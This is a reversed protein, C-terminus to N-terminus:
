WNIAIWLDSMSNENFYIELPGTPNPLPTFHNSLYGVLMDGYKNPNSELPVNVGDIENEYVTISTESKTFIIIEKSQNVSGNSWYPYHSNKIDLTLAFRTLDGDTSLRKFKAWETPFEHRVSFLRTSSTSHESTLSDKLSAIAASRILDGGERATYRIHLIVDSISEYDFQTLENKSPNAPLTVNWESIVGSHEFPLYREDRLNPDFLGSDNQSSSTVISQLSSFNDSFRPDQADERAYVGANLLQTTRISSKLLTLRCNVSTYPGTVCPISVAVTRIRRFYQGPGDMDFIAEPLKVTCTGTQRLQVLALPDVQMLSVHKIMEYERQNLEQYAMEMRKIDLFLKEGALLGENGSLYNFKIYNLESKGLEHQLAREAKKAMDFAMQFCQKNLGRVERSMWTYISKNMRKGNKENGEENLFLQIEESHKIQQKHNKLEQEAIAVRIQAARLQKFVQNLEGAALNSQFSWDLERSIFGAIKGAKTAEYSSKGASIRSSDAALSLETSLARGGFQLAAGAGMPQAQTGLEPILSVAKAIMDYDAAEEQLEQARKLRKMEQSEASSMIHGGATDLDQVIDVDIPEPLEIFPEDMSFNMKVLGEKDLEDLEPITQKIEEPKKGLQLQYFTYRQVVLALSEVLGEKAKIAEQLQSYRVQEVMEMVIREHKARLIALTEADKKEIVSILNNGLSKVEQALEAARQVLFQFRVFPLPQNLGNIIASVNLGAATARALLAPDIPPEFLALQRFVGQFNLSNRIKFLRDAVTDWYTLLKDNRPVCFYLAKGLGSVTDLRANDAVNDAPFPMLDFPVSTELNQMASGFHKLDKRLNAYTQARVSGKKPVPQPRPGLINAALIYLQAAEDIAEGTDQRFLSDGWSILNDLYAMVTKYMNAQPRYRAIAHPNFPSGEWNEISRITETQLSKDAGTVLNILIDEIKKVDTYQFPRVKWYREPTPGDSDDTPDFLFHFWQQAEPFRQNRSLHVAIMYPVHFFQEWNYVSYAGNFSFDLDKVPYPKGVIETNPHYTDEFFESFLTPRLKRKLLRVPVLNPLIFQIGRGLLVNTSPPLTAITGDYLRIQTATNLEIKTDNFVIVESNAAPTFEEGVSPTGSMGASLLGKMGNPLMATTNGITQFSMNADLEIPVGNSTAQVTSLLAINSGSSINLTVGSDVAIELSGPLSENEPVYDTDAAQLEATSGTLLRQMLQQVYPHQHLYFRCSLEREQIIFQKNQTTPAIPVRFFTKGQQENITHFAAKSVESNSLYNM